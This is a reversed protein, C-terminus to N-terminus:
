NQNLGYSIELSLIALALSSPALACQECLVYGFRPRRRLASCAAARRVDLGASNEETKGVASERTWLTEGRMEVM